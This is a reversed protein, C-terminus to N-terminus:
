PNRTVEIPKGVSLDNLDVKQYYYVKDEYKFSKDGDTDRQINLLAFGQKDYFTIDVVNVDSTTLARLNEGRADTVYAVSADNDDMRGNSNTDAPKVLLFLWKKNETKNRPYRNGHVPYPLLRKVFTDKDFLSRYSDKTFDYVLLNASYGDLALKPNSLISQGFSVPFFMTSASDLMFPADLRQVYKKSLDQSFATAFCATAFLLIIIPKM